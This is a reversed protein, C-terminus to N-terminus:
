SQPGRLRGASTVLGDNLVGLGTPGFFDRRAHADCLTVTERFGDGKTWDGREAGKERTRKAGLVPSVM